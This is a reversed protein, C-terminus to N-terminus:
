EEAVPWGLQRAAEVLGHDRLRVPRVGLADLRELLAAVGGELRAIGGPDVAGADGWVVYVRRGRRRRLILGVLEAYGDRAPADAGGADRPPLFPAPRIAAGTVLFALRGETSRLLDRFLEFRRALEAPPLYAIPAGGTRAVAVYDSRDLRLYGRRALPRVGSRSVSARGAGHRRLEWRILAVAREDWSRGDPRWTAALFGVAGLLLSGGVTVFPLLLAGAGAYCLFKLADRASPFPGLRLRRDVPEPLEILPPGEAPEAM